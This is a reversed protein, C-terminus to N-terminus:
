RVADVLGQPKETIPIATSYPLCTSRTHFKVKSQALHRYSLVGDKYFLPVDLSPLRIQFSKTPTKTKIMQSFKTSDILACRKAERKDPIEGFGIASESVKPSFKNKCRFAGPPVSLRPNRSAHLARSESRQSELMESLDDHLLRTKIRLNSHDHRTRFRCARGAKHGEGSLSETDTEIGSEEAELLCPGARFPEEPPGSEADSTSYDTFSVFPMSELGSSSVFSLRSPSRASCTQHRMSKLLLAYRRSLCGRWHRQIIKVSDLTKQYRRKQLFCRVSSQILIISRRRKLYNLRCLWSKFARQVIIIARKTEQFKRKAVFKKFDLFFILGM